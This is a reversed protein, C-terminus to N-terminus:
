KHDNIWDMLLSRAHDTAKRRGTASVSPSARASSRMQRSATSNIEDKLSTSERTRPRTAKTFGNDSSSSSSTGSSFGSRGGNSSMCTGFMVHNPSSTGTTTTTASTTDYWADPMGPVEVRADMVQFDEEDDSSPAHAQYAFMEADIGSPAQDGVSVTYETLDTNAGKEAVQEKSDEPHPSTSSAPDVQQLPPYTGPMPFLEHWFPSPLLTGQVESSLASDLSSLFSLCQNWETDPDLGSRGTQQHEPEDM